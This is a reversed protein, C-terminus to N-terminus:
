RVGGLPREMRGRPRAGARLRRVLGSRRGRRRGAHPLRGAVGHAPEGARAPLRVGGAARWAHRLIGARASRGDPEGYAQAIPVSEWSRMSWVLFENLRSITLM